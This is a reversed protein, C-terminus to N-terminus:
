SAFFIFLSIKVCREPVLPSPSVTSHADKFFGLPHAGADCFFNGECLVSIHSCFPSFQPPAKSPRSPSADGTFVVAHHCTPLSLLTLPVPRPELPEPSSEGEILGTGGLILFHPPPVHSITTPWVPVEPANWFHPPSKRV